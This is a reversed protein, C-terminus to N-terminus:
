VRAASGSTASRRSLADITVAVMRSGDAPNIRTVRKGTRETIWLFGDPGWALEWPGELGSTVVRSVFSEPGQTTIVRPNRAAPNGQGRPTVAVAGLLAAVALLRIATMSTM